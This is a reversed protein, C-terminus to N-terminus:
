ALDGLLRGESVIQQDDLWMDCRRMPIDFHGLTYRNAVPNAGSSFLMNGAFARQETANIDGKDYMMLADWRAHPNMGWGLHSVGYANDDGWYAFHERMLDGDVNDGVIERIFDDKIHLEVANEYYRKFTLNIDGPSLVLVGNCTGAAPFFSSIGGPWSALTGPDRVVGLNGGIRAGKLGCTFDSGAASKVRFTQASNLMQRAKLIKPILSEDTSTRELSEPHDNSVYLSRSGSQMIEPTEPAHMLGEVTLDAIFIGGKLAALVQKNMGVAHTSGTSRVPVGVEQPPTPMVIHFAKAGLKHLALETLHVNLERSQTESLIAVDDGAKVNCLEFQRAFCDIWKGEIRNRLM